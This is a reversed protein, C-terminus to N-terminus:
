GSGATDDEVTLPRFIPYLAALLSLGGTVVFTADLGFWQAILGGAAPGAFTGWSVAWQFLGSAAGHRSPGAADLAAALLPPVTLGYGFGAVVQSGTLPGYAAVLPLVVTGLGTLGLGLAAIWRRRVRGALLTGCLLYAATMAGMTAATLIGVESRTAGLAVARVPVYTFVTAMQTLNGVLALGIVLLVGPSRVTALFGGPGSQSGPAVSPTRRSALSLTLVGAGALALGFVFPAQWGLHQALEGGLLASATQGLGFFFVALSAARTTQKPGLVATYTPPLAVLAAGGLGALGRWAIFSEPQRFLVFGLCGLGALAPSSTAIARRLGHDSLLGLPIRALLQMFGYSGGIM